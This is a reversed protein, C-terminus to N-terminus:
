RLNTLTLLLQKHVENRIPPLVWRKYQSQMAQGKEIRCRPDDLNVDKRVTDTYTSCLRGLSHALATRKVNLSGDYGLLIKHVQALTLLRFTVDQRFSTVYTLFDFEHEFDFIESLILEINNTSKLPANTKTLLDIDDPPLLWPHEGRDIATLLERKLENLVAHWCITLEKDTDISDIPIHFLRRMGLMSLNFTDRNSTGGFLAKPTYVAPITEYKDIIMQPENDLLKKFYAETSEDRLHQEIEDFVVLRSSSAIKTVDRLEASNGFGHTTFATDHRFFKPFLYRFFSTKYTNEVGTLLLISSNSRHVGEYYMGRLLGFWWAKFLRAYLLKKEESESKKIHICSWLYDFTSQEYNKGNEQMEEPLEDFPMELYMRFFDISNSNKHAVVEVFSGLRILGMGIFGNAQVFSLMSMALTKYDYPGLYKDFYWTIDHQETFYEELIDRDGSIYLHYFIGSSSYFKIDYHEL